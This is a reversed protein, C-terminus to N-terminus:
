PQPVVNLHKSHWTGTGATVRFLTQVNYTSGSTLGNVMYTVGGRFALTGNWTLAINDAATLFVTGSGVSGGARVQITMLNYNAASNLIQASWGVLARGSPPAIFALGCATGGTLTATYTTSTSTGTTDQQDSSSDWAVVSDGTFAM